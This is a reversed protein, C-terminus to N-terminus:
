EGEPRLIGPLSFTSAAASAAVLRGYKWCFGIKGEDNLRMNYIMPDSEPLVLCGELLNTCILGKGKRLATTGGFVEGAFM